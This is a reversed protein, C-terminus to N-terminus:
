LVNKDINQLSLTRDIYSVGLHLTENNLEFHACVDILWDILIARMNANITKQNLMYTNKPNLYMM